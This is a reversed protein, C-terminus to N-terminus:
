KTRQLGMGSGSSYFTQELYHREILALNNDKFYLYYKEHGFFVPLFVVTFVSSKSTKYVWMESANDVRKALKVAKDPDGLLLGVEEKTAGETVKLERLNNKVADNLDAHNFIYKEVKEKLAAMDEDYRENGRFDKISIIKSRGGFSRKAKKEEKTISYLQKYSNARPISCCGAFYFCSLILTFFLRKKMLFLERGM